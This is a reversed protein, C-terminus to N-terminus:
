DSSYGGISVVEGSELSLEIGSSGCAEKLADLPQLDGDEPSYVIDYDGYDILIGYSSDAPSASVLAAITAALGIVLIAISAVVRINM